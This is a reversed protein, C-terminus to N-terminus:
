APVGSLVAALQEGWQRARAIEGEVLENDGTVLFSGRECCLHFGQAELRHAISKAASGTLWQAKDVRTDFAAAPRGGGEPLGTIWDRLLIGESILEGHQERAGERSRRSVMGHVHTPGGVILVDDPTPSGAEGVEEVEVDIRGRLGEAIAWAIERTNGFMSEYVVLARM